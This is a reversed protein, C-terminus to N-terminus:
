SCQERRTSELITGEGGIINMEEVTAQKRVIRHDLQDRGVQVNEACGGLQIPCANLRRNKARQKLPAEIRAFAGLEARVIGAFFVDKKDDLGNKHFGKAM